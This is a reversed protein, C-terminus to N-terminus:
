DGRRILQERRRQVGASFRHGADIGPREVLLYSVAALAVAVTVVVGLLTGFPIRFSEWPTVDVVVHVALQHWLYVGYSFLGIAAVPRWILARPTGAVAPLLLLVAFAGWLLEEAVAQGPPRDYLPDRGLGVGLALVLYALAAGAWCALVGRRSRLWRPAGREGWRVSGVALAFGLGFLDTWVPLFGHWVRWPVPNTLELVLRVALGGAVLVAIGTWEARVRGAADRARGLRGLLAAYVPLTLYFVLEVCLSWAQPVGLFVTQERYVQGLVPLLVADLADRPRASPVLLLTAALVVWYLPLIRFLRRVLFRGVAPAPGDALHAVAFPRYLLFGSLVFFVGVGVEARATLEGPLGPRTSLGSVFGVHVVVVLLAALGRLGEVAPFFAPGRRSAPAVPSRSAQPASM